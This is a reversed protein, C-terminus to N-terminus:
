RENAADAMEFIHRSYVRNTEPDFIYEEPHALAEEMTVFRGPAGIVEFRNGQAASRNTTGVEFERLQEVNQTSNGNRWLRFRSRRASSSELAKETHEQPQMQGEPTEEESATQNLATEEVARDHPLDTTDVQTETTATEAGRMLNAEDNASRNLVRVDAPADLLNGVANGFISLRKKVSEFSLELMLCALMIVALYSAKSRSIMSIAWYRAYQSNLLDARQMQADVSEAYEEVSGLWQNVAQYHYLEVDWCAIYYTVAVTACLLVLNFLLTRIYAPREERSYAGYDILMRVVKYLFNFCLFFGAALGFALIFAFVYAMTMRDFPPAQFFYALVPMKRLLDSDFGVEGLTNVIGLFDAFDVLINFNLVVIFLALALMVGIMAVFLRGLARLYTQNMKTVEREGGFNSDPNEDAM